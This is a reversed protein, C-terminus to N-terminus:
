SKDPVCASGKFVDLDVRIDSLPRKPFSKKFVGHDANLGGKKSAANIFERLQAFAKERVAKEQDSLKAELVDCKTLDGDTSSPFRAGM